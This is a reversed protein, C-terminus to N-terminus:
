RKFLGRVISLGVERLVGRVMTNKSAQKVAERVVTNGLQRAASKGMTELLSERARGTAKPAKGLPTEGEAAQVDKMRADLVEYASERDLTQEYRGRLPSARVVEAREAETLPGVRSAPPLIGTIQVPLPVGKRDLVGVLAEGVALKPLVEATDFAPNSAMTSAAVKIDKQGQPTAARLAHQVRNGLQALVSDPVDSPQQTVFYVGVGKSRILRVVQEIKELLPKPTDNFLLHAEDFFLCLKPVAVDGVEPLTEFLESLLYLLFVAYVKPRQMLEVAHLVHIVGRGDAGRALLDAVQLAPEGFLAKGGEQELGLLARQIGALSVGAVAGYKKSIVAANEGVFGLVARLDALDLLLLKEDDAVQFVVQMVGTQVDSLGLLRALLLPGLESVTLRAPHGAHGAVDWFVVNNGRPAYAQGCQAYKEVVWSEGSGALAIGSLDGKVDSVFVSSGAAALQEAMSQLTVTKGTGTAGAVLGHRNARSLDLLVPGENSVGLIVEAM